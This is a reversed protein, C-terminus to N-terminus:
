QYLIVQQSVNDLQLRYVWDKDGPQEAWDQQDKRPGAWRAGGVARSALCSLTVALGPRVVLQGAEGRLGAGGTM